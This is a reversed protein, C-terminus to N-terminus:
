WTETMKTKEHFYDFVKIDSIEQGKNETWKLPSRM